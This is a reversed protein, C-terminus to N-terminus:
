QLFLRRAKDINLQITPEKGRHHPFDRWDDPVISVKKLYNRQERNLRLVNAIAEAIKLHTETLM